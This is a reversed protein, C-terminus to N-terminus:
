HPHLFYETDKPTSFTPTPSAPIQYSRHLGSTSPRELDMSDSEPDRPLVPDADIHTTVHCRDGVLALAREELRTLEVVEEPGGRTASLSAEKAAQNKKLEEVVSEVLFSSAGSESAALDEMVDLSTAETEEEEGGDGATLPQHSPGPGDSDNDDSDRSPDADGVAMAGVQAGMLASVREEVSTRPQVEPDRRGTQMQDRRM